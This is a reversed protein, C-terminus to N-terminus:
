AFARLRLPFVIVSFSIALTTTSAANGSDDVPQVNISWNKAGQRRQTLLDQAPEAREVFTTPGSARIM